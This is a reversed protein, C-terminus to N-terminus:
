RAAGGVDNGHDGRNHRPGRRARMSRSRVLPRADWDADYVPIRLHAWAWFMGGLWGFLVLGLGIVFSLPRFGTALSPSSAIGFWLAGLLAARAIFSVITLVLGRSAGLEGALMQLGQGAAYFFIVVGGGVAASVVGHLGQAWFAIGLAVLWAAHAFGLSKRLMTTMMAVAPSPARGAPNSAADIPEAMMPSATTSM